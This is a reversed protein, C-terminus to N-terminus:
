SIAGWSDGGGMVAPSGCRGRHAPAAGGGKKESSSAEKEGEVRDAEESNLPDQAAVSHGEQEEQFCLTYISAQHAPGAFLSSRKESSYGTGKRANLIQSYSFRPLYPVMELM